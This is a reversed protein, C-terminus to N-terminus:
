FHVDLSSVVSFGSYPLCSVLLFLDLSWSMVPAPFMETWSNVLCFDKFLCSTWPLVGHLFDGSTQWHGDQHDVATTQPWILSFSFLDLMIDVVLMLVDDCYHLMTSSGDHNPRGNSGQPKSKKGDHLSFNIGVNNYWSRQGGAAPYFNPSVAPHHAKSSCPPFFIWKLFLFDEKQRPGTLPRLQVGVSISHISSWLGM